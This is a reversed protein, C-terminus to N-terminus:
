PIPEVGTRSAPPASPQTTTSGPKKAKVFRPWVARGIRWIVWLLGGVTLAWLLVLPLKIFLSVVWDMWEGLGALLERTATKVNYLPRWGIGLVRTDSEQTLSVSIASMEIDHTMVQIQTQLREIRDRVDSLKGSVELIESVTHAQKMITAYQQEEVRLNRMHAENDYFERTVDHGSVQEHDTRVALKKYQALATILVSAPVRVVLTASVSGGGETIDLNDVEGRSAETIRRIQEAAARVDAVTLGLEANHIVKRDPVPTTSDPPESGQALDTNEQAAFLLANPSASAWRRSVSAQEGEPHPRKLISLSIAAIFALLPIVIAWLVKRRKSM